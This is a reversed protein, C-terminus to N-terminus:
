DQEKKTNQYASIDIVDAPKTKKAPEDPRHFGEFNTSMRIHGSELKRQFWRTILFAYFPRTSPLIMSFGLIDSLYGPTLLMIGGAVVLLGEVLASGPVIGSRLSSEAKKIIQFGQNKAISAGVVGTCFIAGVTLLIANFGGFVSEAFGHVKIIILLEVVPVTTFLILLPIFM